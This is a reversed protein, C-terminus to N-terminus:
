AQQPLGTAQMGAFLVAFQIAAPEYAKRCQECIAAETQISCETGQSRWHFVPGAKHRVDFRYWARNDKGTHKSGEIWKVRGIAM